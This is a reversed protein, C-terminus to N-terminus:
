RKGGHTPDFAADLRASWARLADGLHIPIARLHGGDIIELVRVVYGNLGRAAAEIEEPETIRVSADEILSLWGRLAKASLRIRHGIPIAGQAYGIPLAPSTLVIHGNEFRISWEVPMDTDTLVRGTEEDPEEADEPRPRQRAGDTQESFM